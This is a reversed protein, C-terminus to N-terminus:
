DCFAEACQKASPLAVTGAAFPKLTSHKLQKLAVAHLKLAAM